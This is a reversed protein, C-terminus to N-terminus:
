KIMLLLHRHLLNRKMYPHLRVIKGTGELLGIRDRGRLMALALKVLLLEPRWPVSSKM